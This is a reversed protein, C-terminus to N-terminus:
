KSISFHSVNPIILLPMPTHNLLQQTTNGLWLNAVGGEGESERMIVMLNVDKDSAYKVISPAINGKYKHMFVEHRVNAKACLTEAHALQVSVVHKEQMNNGFYFGVLLIKAAFAKAFQIAPKVKQLTEFSIDIPVLVQTLDRNIKIGERLVMVPVKSYGVTKFANSGVFMEEFGSVGHTGLVIMSNKLTSAYRPLEAFPKGELIVKKFANDPAEKKCEEILEDLKNSALNIYDGRNANALGKTVGPTKVWVLHMEANTKLAIATAHRMSNISNASFDIGVVINKM